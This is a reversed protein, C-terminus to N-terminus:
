PQNRCEAPVHKAEGATYECLWDIRGGGTDPTFRFIPDTTAGTNTTTATIVGSGTIEVDSVYDSATDFAWGYSAEASPFDGTSQFTEAVALKAGAAVSIGEAARARISYDQYAPVAIALLIALIAIVIMLEILTFGAQKRMTKM